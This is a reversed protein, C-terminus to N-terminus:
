RPTWGDLRLTAQGLRKALEEPQELSELELLVQEVTTRLGGRLNLVLTQITYVPGWPLGWWGLLLSWLTAVLNALLVDVSAGVLYGTRQRFTLTVFSTCFQFRTLPTHLDVPEGEWFEVRGPAGRLAEGHEWLWALFARTRRRQRWQHFWAGGLIAVFLMDLAFDAHNGEYFNVAGAVLCLVALLLAVLM